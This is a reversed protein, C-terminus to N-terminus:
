RTAWASAWRARLAAILASTCSNVALVHKVGLFEAFAQEAAAVKSPRPNYYRFLHPGKLEDARDRILGIIQEKIGPAFEWLDLLEILEEQHIKTAYPGLMIKTDTEATM